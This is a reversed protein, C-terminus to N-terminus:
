IEKIVGKKILADRQKQFKSGEKLCGKLSDMIAKKSDRMITGGGETKFPSTFIRGDFDVFVSYGIIDIQVGQPAIRRKPEFLRVAIGGCLTIFVLISGAILAVVSHNIDFSYSVIVAREDIKDGGSYAVIPAKPLEKSLYAAVQMARNLAINDNDAEAGKKDAYGAVSMRLTIIGFEIIKNNRKKLGRMKEAFGLIQSEVEGKVSFSAPAFGTIKVEGSVASSSFIFAVLFLVVSICSAVVLVLVRKM